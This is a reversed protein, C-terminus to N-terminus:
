PEADQSHVGRQVEVEGQPLCDYSFTHSGDASNWSLAPATFLAWDCPARM